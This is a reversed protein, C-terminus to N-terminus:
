WDEPLEKHKTAGEARVRAIFERVPVRWGAWIHRPKGRWLRRFYVEGNKIQDVILLCDDKSYGQAM